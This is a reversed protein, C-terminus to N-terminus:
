WHRLTILFRATPFTISVMEQLPRDFSSQQTITYRMHVDLILFAGSLHRLLLCSVGALYILGDPGRLCPLYYSPQLCSKLLSLFLPYFNEHQIQMLLSTCPDCFSAIRYSVTAWEGLVQERQTASKIGKRLRIEQWVQLEEILRGNEVLAEDVTSYPARQQISEKLCEESGEEELTQDMALARQTWERHRAREHMAEVTFYYGQGATTGSSDYAPGFTPTFTSFGVSPIGVIPSCFDLRWRSVEM